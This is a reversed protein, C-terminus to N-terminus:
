NQKQDLPFWQVSTVQVLDGCIHVQCRREWKHWLSLSKQAVTTVEKQVLTLQPSLTCFQTQTSGRSHQNPVYGGSVTVKRRM